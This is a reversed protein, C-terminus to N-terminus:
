RLCSGIWGPDVSKDGFYGRLVEQITGPSGIGALMPLLKLYPSVPADPLFGKSLFLSEYAAASADIHLLDPPFQTMECFMQASRPTAGPVIGVVNINNQQLQPLYHTVQQALEFSTLDGTHTFFLVLSPGSKGKVLSAITKEEEGRVDFVKLMMDAVKPVKLTRGMPAFPSGHSLSLLAVAVSLLLLLAIRSM